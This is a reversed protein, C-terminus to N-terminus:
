ASPKAESNMPCRFNVCNPCGTFYLHVIWLGMFFLLALLLATPMKTRFSFESLHNKREATLM